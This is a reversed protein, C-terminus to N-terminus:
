HVYDMLRVAAQEGSCITDPIGVGCYSCGALFLGPLAAIREQITRVRALHGVTYGPM